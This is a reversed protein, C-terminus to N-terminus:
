FGRAALWDALDRYFRIADFGNGQGPSDGVLQNVEDMHDAPICGLFLGHRASGVSVLGDHVPRPSLGDLIPATLNFLPDLPDRQGDWKAIFAPEAPSFCPMGGLSMESRGAISFYAVHPDDPHKAFFAHAGATSLTAIQSKANSNFGNIAGYINLLANIANNAGPGASLAVDAIENGGMPSAITIVTGVRPGIASAAYRANFGGQSHAILNVKAKGTTALVMQVYALVEAGRVESDNVPDQRSVWVDHGDKRLADPVGYFYDIPGINRFGAMGHVLVIPYPPGGGVPGADTGSFPDPPGGDDGGNAEPFSLDHRARADGSAVDSACGAVGLAACCFAVAFRSLSPLLSPM